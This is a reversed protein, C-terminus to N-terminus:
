VFVKRVKSEFAVDQRSNYSPYNLSRVFVPNRTGVHGARFAVRDIWSALLRVHISLVVCRTLFM